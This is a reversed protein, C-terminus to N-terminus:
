QVNYCEVLGVGTSNNKGRVIATYGGPLVTTLIAAEKDNTPALGTGEIATQHSKWITMNSAILAGDGNHLELTPDQLRNLITSPLSPGLARALVKGSAGVVTGAIMVDDGSGVFSRSSINALQSDGGADLDYVEVLGVGTGNNKGRVIATYTVPNSQSYPELTAIIASELNNTPALGTAQIQTQQSTRWNDNSAITTDVNGVAKHLELVPDALVGTLSAPPLALTPGIARIIVKKARQRDCYFRCDLRQRWDLRSCPHFYKQLAQNQSRFRFRWHRSAARNGRRWCGWFRSRAGMRRGTVKIADVGLGSSTDLLAFVQFGIGSKDNNQIPAPIIGSIQVHEVGNAALPTVPAISASTLEVPDPLQPPLQDQEFASGPVAILRIRLPGSTTPTHNELNLTASFNTTNCPLFHRNLKAVLRTSRFARCELRQFLRITTKGHSKKVRNAHFGASDWATADIQYSGPPLIPPTYPFTIGSSSAVSQMISAPAYSEPGLSCNHNMLPDANLKETIKIGLRAIKYSAPNGVAKTVLTLPHGFNIQAPVAENHTGGYLNVAPAGVHGPNSPNLTLSCATVTGVTGSNTPGPTDDIIKITYTCTNSNPPEPFDGAFPFDAVLDVHTVLQNNAGRLQEHDWIVAIPTGPPCSNRGPGLSGPFAIIKLNGVATANPENIGLSFSATPSSPM